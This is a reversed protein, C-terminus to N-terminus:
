EATPAAGSYTWSAIKWDNGVRTMVFTMSGTGAKKTGNEVFRYTTPLVIYARGGDSTARIPKGYDVRGGTIGKAASDKAYDEAWRQASRSGSWFYPAFEDIIVADDQHAAFFADIDGGNFKDLMTTVTATADEPPGAEAPAVILLSVAVLAIFGRM